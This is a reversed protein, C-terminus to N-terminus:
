ANVRHEWAEYLLDLRKKKAEFDAQLQRLRQHNQYVAEDGFQHQMEDIELEAETVMEEIQEPSYKNFPRLHEPTKTKMGAAPQSKRKAEIKEKEQAQKQEQVKQAYTSYVGDTGAAASLIMQATGIRRRGTADAGLVLLRDAVRDLFYRDHSVAVVAGNFDDLAAELMGRSPIDLHNTPEDLILVDPESLVLKCLMLRNQQGGSLDDVRKFVDDGSFLFAGLRGRVAEPSLEPRVSLSEELVTNAPNLTMAQQDLYGVKLNAGLRIRGADAELQGM